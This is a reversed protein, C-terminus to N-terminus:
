LRKAAGVSVTIATERNPVVSLVMTAERLALAISLRAGCGTPAIMSRGDTATKGAGVPRASAFFTNARRLFAESFVSKDTRSHHNLRCQFLLTPALMARGNTITEDTTEPRAVAIVTDTVAYIRRLFPAILFTRCSGCVM